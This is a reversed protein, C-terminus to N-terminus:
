AKAIQALPARVGGATAVQAILVTVQRVISEILVQVNM